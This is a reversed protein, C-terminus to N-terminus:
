DSSPRYVILDSEPKRPLSVQHRAMLESGKFTGLQGPHDSVLDYRVEPDLGRLAVEATLYASKGHRFILLLGENLDSRHFQVGTWEHRDRSYPLLPYWADILLHRIERYRNLLREGLAVDFDPADAIWGLCLSSALTSHFSYEDLRNLHAVV